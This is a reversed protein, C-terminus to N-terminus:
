SAAYKVGVVARADRTGVEARLSARYYMDLFEAYKEHSRLLVISDNAVRLTMAASLDGLVPGSVTSATAPLTQSTVVVPINYLKREAM